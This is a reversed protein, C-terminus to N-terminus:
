ALSGAIEALAVLAVQAVLLVVPLLYVLALKKLASARDSLPSHANARTWAVAFPVALVAALAAKSATPHAAMVSSWLVRPTPAPVASPGILILIWAGIIPMGDAGRGLWGSAALGFWLLAAAAGAVFGTLFRRHASVALVRALLLALFVDFV